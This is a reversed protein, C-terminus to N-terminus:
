TGFLHTGDPRTIHGLANADNVVSWEGNITYGQLQNANRDVIFNNLGTFRIWEMLWFTTADVYLRLQDIVNTDYLANRLSNSNVDIAISAELDGTRRHTLLGEVYTTEPVSITLTWSKFGDIDTWTPGGDFVQPKAAVSAGDHVNLATSPDLVVAATGETLEGQVGFTASWTQETGQEKPNNIQLTLIRITGSYSKESGTTADSIGVFAFDEGPTINPNTGVGAMVGTENINGKTVGTGGNTCSARYKNSSSVRNYGWSQICNVGNVAADRGTVFM